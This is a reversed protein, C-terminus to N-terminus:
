SVEVILEEEKIFSSDLVKKFLIQLKLEKAKTLIDRLLQTSSLSRNLLHILLYEEILMSLEKLNPQLYSIVVIILYTTNLLLDLIRIL